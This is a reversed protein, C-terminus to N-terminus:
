LRGRECNLAICIKLLMDTSINEGRRLKAITSSCIEAKQRLESKIWGEDILTKWLKNYSFRVQSKEKTERFVTSNM